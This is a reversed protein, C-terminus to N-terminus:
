QPATIIGKSGCHLGSLELGQLLVLKILHDQIEEHKPSATELVTHVYETRCAPTSTLAPLGAVGNVNAASLPKVSNMLQRSSAPASAFIGSSTLKIRMNLRNNTAKNSNNSKQIEGTM